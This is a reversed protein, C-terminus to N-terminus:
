RDLVPVVQLRCQFPLEARADRRATFDRVLDLVAEGRGDFQCEGRHHERDAEPDREAVESRFAM